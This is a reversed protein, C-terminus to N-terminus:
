FLLDGRLLLSGRLLLIGQLLLNEWLLLIGRLLLNGQLLLIGLLLHLVAQLVVLLHNPVVVAALALVVLGDLSTPPHVV